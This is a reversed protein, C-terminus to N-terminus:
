WATINYVNCDFGVTFDEKFSVPRRELGESLNVGCDFIQNGYRLSISAVPSYDTRMRDSAYYIQNEQASVGAVWYVDGKKDPDIVVGGYFSKVCNRVRIDDSQFASQNSAQCAISAAGMLTFLPIIQKQAAISLGAGFKEFENNLSTPIQASVMAAVDPASFFGKELDQESLQVKFNMTLKHHIQDVRQNGVFAGVPADKKPIFRYAKLNRHVSEAIIATLNHRHDIYKSLGIGAGIKMGNNLLTGWSIGVSITDTSLNTRAGFDKSTNGALANSDASQFYAASVHLGPVVRDMNGDLTLPQLYMRGGIASNNTMNPFSYKMSDEALSVSVLIQAIVILYNSRFM